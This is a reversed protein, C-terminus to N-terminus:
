AFSFVLYVETNGTCTTQLRSSTSLTELDVTIENWQGQPVSQGFMTFANNDLTVYVRVKLQTYGNAAAYLKMDELAEATFNERKRGTATLKLGTIEEEGVTGTFDEATFVGSFSDPRILERNFFEVTLYIEANTEAAVTFFFEENLSLLNVDIGTWEAAATAQGNMTLSGSVAYANIRMFNVNNAEACKKIRDIVSETFYFSSGNKKSTIKVGTIEKDGVTGEYNEYRVDQGYFSTAGVLIEKSFTFSLCIETTSESTSWFAYETTLDDLHIMVSDGASVTWVRHSEEDANLVFAYEGAVQSHITLTDYGNAKAYDKIRKLGTETFFFKPQYHSSTVKLGMFGEDSGDGNYDEFSVGEGRFTNTNFLETKVFEFYLYVHSEGESQSWFTVDKTLAAIELDISKWEKNLYVQNNLVLNNNPLDAYAHIRLTDYGTEEAYDQLRLIASETFIFKPQYDTSFGYIGTFTQEGITGEYDSFTFRGGVFSEPTIAPLNVFEFWMYVATTGQSQSWFLEPKSLVDMHLDIVTWQNNVAYEGNVMLSNDAVEAYVHMRLTNAGNAAAHERIKAAGAETFQFYPQYFSSKIEIGNITEGGALGIYDTATIIAGNCPEFFNKNIIGKEPVDLYQWEFWLYIETVGQSQSWFVFNEDLASLPIMNSEWKRLSTYNGNVVFSNDFLIAYSHITLFNYGAEAGFAKIKEIGEPTFRFAPQYESSKVMIGNIVQGDVEGMFNSFSSVAILDTSGPRPAKEFFTADIPGVRDPIDLSYMEFWLYVETLGQSQSWFAIDASLQDVPIDVVTWANNACYTGNIVLGNDLLIPHAHIRLFNMNHKEAAKKVASIGTDSFYFTPQYHSSKFVYGDFEVEAVTGKYTEVSFQSNGNFYPSTPTPKGTKGYPTVAGSSNVFEFIMYNETVGQSQSWFTFEDSLKSVKFDKYDWKELEFPYGGVMYSNDKQIPYCWVRLANFGQKEAYKKIDEIAADTFHAEPQYEVSKFVYGDFTKGGVTGKFPKISGTFSTANIAPLNTFEFWVYTEQEESGGATFQTLSNLHGLYIDTASWKGQDMVIGNATFTGDEKGIYSHVRLADYGHERAYLRLAKVALKTLTITQAEDMLLGQFEVDEVQGTYDKPTGTFCNAYFGIWEVIEVNTLDEETESPETPEPETPPETPPTTPITATTSPPPTEQEKKGCGTILLSVSLCLVLVFALLKMISKNM